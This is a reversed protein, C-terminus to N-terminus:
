PFSMQPLKNTQFMAKASNIDNLLGERIDVDIFNFNFQKALEKDM